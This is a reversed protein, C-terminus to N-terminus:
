GGFYKCVEEPSTHAIQFRELFRFNDRILADGNGLLNEAGSADLIVKSDVHSAVRCSIRATFNAKIAGNIINVSPRQMGLIIFMKAARCKQALRCLKIYFQDEKDQMILDAFEDVILVINPFQEINSGRGLMDYRSEMINVLSDLTSICESYTYSVNMNEKINKAYLSYEINKPDMLYLHASNYNLLNAIINHLLTSKGSGTAGAVILHPNQALDMWIKEGDVSQGLLCILEGKPIHNNTFYDFLKLMNNRPLAFELRVVGSGHIIKINPKCPTKLVLSIEDTYKKIDKVQAGPNLRLDYYSYNDVHNHNVCNAKINFSKLIKNFEQIAEM